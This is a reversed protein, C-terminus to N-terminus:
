EVRIEVEGHLLMSIGCAEEIEQVVKPYPKGSLMSVGRMLTCIATYTEAEDCNLLIGMIHDMMEDM